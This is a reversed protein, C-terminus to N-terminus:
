ESTKMTARLGELFYPHLVEILPVASEKRIKELEDSM